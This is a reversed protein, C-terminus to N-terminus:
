SWGNSIQAEVMLGLKMRLYHVQEQVMQAKAPNAKFGTQSIIKLVVEVTQMCEDRMHAMILIDDTYSM